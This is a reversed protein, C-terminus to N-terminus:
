HEEIKTRPDLGDLHWWRGGGASRPLTVSHPQGTSLTRPHARRRVETRGLLTESVPGEKVKQYPAKSHLWNPQGRNM